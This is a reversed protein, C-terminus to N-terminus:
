HRQLLLVNNFGPFEVHSLAVLGAKNVQTPKLELIFDNENAGRILLAVARKKQFEEMLVLTLRWKRVM